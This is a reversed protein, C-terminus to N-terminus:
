MRGEARGRPREGAALRTEIEDIVPLLDAVTDIVYHAGAIMLPRAAAARRSSFEAESLADTDALSLGFGNGSVAIGVTWAGANLGEAIGPETDDVKVATWPPGIDLDLFSRYMMLPSPRGRVLDGACVLNDPAYGLETALPALKSMIDRTYGTTSGIKLGRDRLAAVTERTGPILDAYNAVVRANLPVFDAYIRDAEADGPLAGHAERWRAAIAPDDLLARIHDWKALGMPRRAEDISIEVGHKTFVEVFAGMPALSGFDVTTGAWDFIVAELSM